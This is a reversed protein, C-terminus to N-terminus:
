VAIQRDNKQEKHIRVALALLIFPLWFAKRWLMSVFFTSALMAWCAAELAVLSIVPPGKWGIRAERLSSRIAMFMLALGVIGLEVAVALYSNHSDAQSYSYVQSAAGLYQEAAVSFNQEGAGILPYHRFAEFGTQWIYLRGAGGTSESEEVRTYFRSPLLPLMLLVLTVPILVQRKVGMRLIFVVVMVVLALLAGRSMTLLVATGIAATIALWFTRRMWGRAELFRGLALSLPLFLSAAFINPDLERDGIILSSRGM